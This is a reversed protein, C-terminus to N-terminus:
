SWSLAAAPCLWPLREVDFAVDSLLARDAAAVNLHAAYVMLLARDRATGPRGAVSVQDAATGARDMGRPQLEPGSYRAWSGCMRGKKAM